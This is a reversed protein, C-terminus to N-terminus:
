SLDNEERRYKRILQNLEEPIKIIKGNLDTIFLTEQHTMLKCSDSKRFLDFYIYHITKRNCFNLSIQIIIEERLKAFSYFNTNMEKVAILYQNCFGDLHQFAFLDRAEACWNLYSLYYVIGFADTDAITVIKHTSFVSM